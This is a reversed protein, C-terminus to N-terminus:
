PLKLAYRIAYFKSPPFNQRILTPFNQRTFYQRIGIYMHENIIIIKDDDQDDHKSHTFVAKYTIHIM